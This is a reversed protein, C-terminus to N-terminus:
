VQGGKEGDKKDGPFVRLIADRKDKSDVGAYRATMAESCHGMISRLIIRDVGDRIMLTNLTRRLVQPSVVQDIRAGERALDFAKRVSQPLRMSGNVNPFVWGEKLGPHNDAMMQKRHERLADVLSSHMPVVRPAHTKTTESIRGGSVTRRVIIEQRSVDVSDWKLAYVEGVRMGTRAMTLIAVYHDPAYQQAADLFKGLEEDTLVRTERVDRRPSEPPRVRRTPDPLDFDAAADRLIQVLIRWWGTVTGHAYRQGNSQRLREVSVVWDEVVSRSVEVIRIDGIRPIITRSIADWYRKQSGEKLRASRTAYWRKSYEGVTESNAPIAKFKERTSTEGDNRIEAAMDQLRQRLIEARRRARDLNSNEPQVETTQKFKGGPLRATVRCVLTGDARRYVGPYKTRELKGIVMLDDGRYNDDPPPETTKAQWGVVEDVRHLSPRISCHEVEPLTELCPPTERGTLM